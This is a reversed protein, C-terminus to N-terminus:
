QLKLSGTAIMNAHTVNKKYKQMVDVHKDYAGDGLVNMAIMLLLAEIKAHLPKKHWKARDEPTIDDPFNFKEDDIPHPIELQQAIRGIAEVFEVFTMNLHRPFDCTIEDVQTQMALNYHRSSEKHGFNETFIHAKILMDTFETHSMYKPASPFALRGSYMSYAAKLTALGHKLALDCAEKWLKERRWVHCDYKQIHQLLFDELFKELAEKCDTAQGAKVYKSHATRVFIEMTNHRCTVNAPNYKSGKGASASLADIDVDALRLTLGDVCGPMEDQFMAGWTNSSICFLQGAPEM